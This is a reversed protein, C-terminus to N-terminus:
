CYDHWLLNCELDEWAKKAVKATLYRGLELLPKIENTVEDIVDSFSVITIHTSNSLEYSRYINEFIKGMLNVVFQYRKRVEPLIRQNVFPMVENKFNELAPAYDRQYKSYISPAVSEIVEIVIPKITRYAELLETKAHQIDIVHYEEVSRKHHHHHYHHDHQQHDGM